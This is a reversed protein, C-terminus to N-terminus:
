RRPRPPQNLVGLVTAVLAPNRLSLLGAAVAAAAATLPRERAIEMIRGVANAPEPEVPRKAAKPKGGSAKSAVIALGIVLVLAFVAAVVASAWAPGVYAKAGAYIAFAIAVTIVGAAAFAAGAAAAGSLVRSLIGKM